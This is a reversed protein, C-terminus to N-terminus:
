PAGHSGAAARKIRTDSAFRQTLTTSSHLHCIAVALADSAHHSAPPETLRLLRKVMQGVQMKEAHGYGTLALKITSPSYVTVPLGALEAAVLVIGEAQGLKLATQINKDVFPEEVAVCDPQYRRILATIEEFMTRLRVPIPQARGGNIQGAAICTTASGGSGNRSATSPASEIVGYGATITGPDIGLIRISHPPRHPLPLSIDEVAGVGRAVKATGGAAPQGM